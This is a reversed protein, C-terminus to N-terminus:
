ASQALQAFDLAVSETTTAHVSSELQRLAGNRLHESPAATTDSPVFVRFGRMHADQATFTVCSHTSIGCLLLADTGLEHLLLELPTHFFGSHRPKLVFYDGAAPTLRRVLASGRRSPESCRAVTSHFDSRWRGFNDNVYIVPLCSQRARQLLAEVRPVAQEAFALLQEAEAFEFDNIVDIVLVALQVLYRVAISTGRATGKGRRTQSCNEHPIRAVARALLGCAGFV